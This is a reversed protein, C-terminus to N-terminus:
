TLCVQTQQYIYVLVENLDEPIIGESKTEILKLEKLLLSRERDLLTSSDISLLIIHNALYAIDM